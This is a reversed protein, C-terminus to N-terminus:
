FTKVVKMLRKLTSEFSRRFLTHFYAWPVESIVKLKRFQATSTFVRGNIAAAANFLVKNNVNEDEKESTKGACFGCM